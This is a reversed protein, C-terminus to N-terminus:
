GMVSRLMHLVAAGKAASLAQLEPSYDELRAAQSVPVNDVTLAEVDTDRMENELTAPGNVHARYLIDSYSAFGNNLWLHNRSAPSVLAGWWQRSIQNALLKSNVDKGIGRPNVFLIGPAAYGNPAGTETEVITLNAYPPIGFLGSFYTMIKGAEQGYANAMAK